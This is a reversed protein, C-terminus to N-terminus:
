VNCKHGNEEVFDIKLAEGTGFARQCAQHLRAAHHMKVAPGPTPNPQKFPSIAASLADTNAAPLATTTEPTPQAYDTSVPLDSGSSSLYRNISLAGLEQFNQSVLNFPRPADNIRAQWDHHM